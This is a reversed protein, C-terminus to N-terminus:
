DLHFIEPIPTMAEDPAAGGIGHFLEAMERQWRANVESAAMAAQAAAFDDCELYGTLEGDDGLFLSYNRWGAARLAAQMDPWVDAHRARYEELHDPDVHLRFCIRETM